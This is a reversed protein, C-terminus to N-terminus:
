NASGIIDHGCVGWKAQKKTSFFWKVKWLQGYYFKTACRVKKHYYLAANSSACKHWHYKRRRRPHPPEFPKGQAHSLRHLQGIGFFSHCQKKGPMLHWLRMKPADHALYTVTCFCAHVRAFPFWRVALFQCKAKCAPHWLNLDQQAWYFPKVM